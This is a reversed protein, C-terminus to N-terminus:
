FAGDKRLRHLKASLRKVNNEVDALQLQSKRLEESVEQAEQSFSNDACTEMHDDITWARSVVADEPSTPECGSLSREFSNVVGSERSRMRHRSGRSTPEAMEAFMVATLNAEFEDKSVSGSNNVDMDAWLIKRDLEPVRLRRMAKEFAKASVEDEDDNDENQECFWEFAYDVDKIGLKEWIRAVVDAWSCSSKLKFSNVMSQVLTTFSAPFEKGLAEMTKYPLVSCVAYTTAMIWAARPRGTLMGLEGFYSGPTYTSVEESEGWCPPDADIFVAAQGRRMFFLERGKQKPCVIFDAPLYVADQLGLVIMAIVEKPQGRLFPARLVLKRYACLRLEKVLNDSLSTFAPQTLDERHVTAMYNQFALVRRALVMPVQMNRLAAWTQAQQAQHQAEWINHTTTFWTLDACVKAIFLQSLLLLLSNVTREIPTVLYDGYGVSTLSLVAFYIAESYLVLCGGQDRFEDIWSPGGWATEQNGLVLLLSAEAHSFAALYLFLSFVGAFINGREVIPPGEPVVVRWIKALQFLMLWQAQSPVVGLPVQGLHIIEAVLGVLSLLDCWVGPSRMHGGYDWPLELEEGQPPKRLVCFRNPPALLAYLVANIMHAVAIVATSWRKSRSFRLLVPGDLPSLCAPEVSLVWLVYACSTVASFRLFRKTHRAAWSVCTGRSLRQRAWRLPRGAVTAMHSHGDELPVIRSFAKSDSTRSKSTPSNVSGQCARICFEIGLNEASLLDISTCSVSQQRHRGPQSSTSRKQSCERGAM